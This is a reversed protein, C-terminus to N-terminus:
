LYRVSKYKKNRNKGLDMSYSLYVEHSGGGFGALASTMLDYAYGIKLGNNM